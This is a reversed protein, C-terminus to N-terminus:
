VVFHAKKKGFVLTGAKEEIGKPNEKKWGL